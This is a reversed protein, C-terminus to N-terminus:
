GGLVSTHRPVSPLVQGFAGRRKCVLSSRRDTDRVCRGIRQAVQQLLQDGADHGQQDNVIKFGDLDIFLLAISLGSREERKVEQDLHRLFYSRNPLGTLFDFNASRIAEEETAKRKTVNRATAAIADLAGQHNFIPKFIYEFTARDDGRPSYSMEGSHSIRTDIVGQLKQQLTIANPLDLEIFNKGVISGLSKNFL